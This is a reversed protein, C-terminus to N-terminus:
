IGEGRNRNKSTKEKKMENKKGGKTMYCVQVIDQWNDIMKYIVKIDSNNM